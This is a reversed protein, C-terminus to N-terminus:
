AVSKAGPLVAAAAANEVYAELVTTFRYQSLVQELRGLMGHLGTYQRLRSKLGVRLRPQDADIEWPHLYLMLPEGDDVVRQLGRAVIGFPLIRLYAGGAVPLNRGWIRCTTIPLELLGSATRYPRRPSDPNNFLDHRVPHVSSSYAFGCEALIEQAWELGPLMSFNPARYGAVRVGAAAEIADKAILTDTRFSEPTHRGIARHWYSHCGVEHGAKVAGAVLEPCREAVWGLFFLTARVQYRDFVELLKWTSREVRLPMTSWAELPAASAMAATQFYDEVDVTLANLM